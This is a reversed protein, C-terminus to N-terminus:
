RSRDDYILYRLGLAAEPAATRETVQVTALRGGRLRVCFWAQVELLDANIDYGGIEGCAEANPRRYPHFYSIRADGISALASEVYILDGEVRPGPLLRRGSFDIQDGPVVRISRETDTVPELLPQLATAPTEPECDGFWAGEADVGFRGALAYSDPESTPLARGVLVADTFALSVTDNIWSSAIIQQEIPGQGGTRAQFVSEGRSDPTISFRGSLVPAALTFISCVQPRQSTPAQAVVRPQVVQLQMQEWTIVRLVLVPNRSSLPRTVEVSSINGLNTRVCLRDGRVLTRADLSASSVPARSCGAYDTGTAPELVLRGGNAPQLTESGVPGVLVLDGNTQADIGTIGRDLDLMYTESLSDLVTPILNRSGEFVVDQAALPATTVGALLSVALIMRRM